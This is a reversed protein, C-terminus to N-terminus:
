DVASPMQTNLSYSPRMKGLSSYAVTKAMKDDIQAAISLHQEQYKMAEPLNGLSEYVSGLNGCARSQLMPLKLDEATELDTQHYSLATSYDAMQQYVQGLGCAADSEAVRDNLERCFQSWHVGFTYKVLKRDYTRAGRVWKAILLQHQLCSIAQQYNGLSTHIHGLEGYASAKIELSNLEHAVVLRKEFCVLSQQSNGLRKHAHGLGRYARELDRPSKLKLGVALHQEHCKIAEELDGLADYCDGLNGFARGQLFFVPVTPM